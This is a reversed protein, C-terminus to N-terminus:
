SSPNIMSRNLLRAYLGGQLTPAPVCPQGVGRVLVADRGLQLERPAGRVKPQPVRAQGGGRGGRHRGDVRAARSLRLHVRRGGGGQSREQGRLAESELRGRAPRPPRRPSGRARAPAPVQRLPARGRGAGGGAGCGLLLFPLLALLGGRGPGFGGGGRGDSGVECRAAATPTRPLRRSLRAACLGHRRLAATTRPLWREAGCM